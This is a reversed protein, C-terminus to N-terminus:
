GNARALQSEIEAALDSASGAFPQGNVFFSPTGEVGVEVGKDFDAQVQAAVKGDALCADYANMDLGAREAADRIGSGALGGSAFVADHFEWFKGQAQACQAGEAAPRASKHFSLPFHRYSFHVKDGYREKIPRVAEAARACYPCEFDSFEVIHIAADTPGFSATTPADALDLPPPRVDPLNTTVKAASRLEDLTKQAAAGNRDKLIEAIVQERVQELPPANESKYQEYFGTIEADTPQEVMALVKKQLWTEGDQGEAAGARDLLKRQVTNDLAQERIRSVAQCYARLATDEAKLAEPGLERAVIDTGDLTGVVADPALAFRAADCSSATGVPRPAAAVPAAEPPPPPTDFAPAQKADTGRAPPPAAQSSCALAFSLVFLARPKM